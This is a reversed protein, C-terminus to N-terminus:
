PNQHKSDGRAYRRCAMVNIVTQVKWKICRDKPELKGFRKILKIFKWTKPQEMKPPRRIPRLGNNKVINDVAVYGPTAAHTSIPVNPDSMRAMMASSFSLASPMRLGQTTLTSRWSTKWPRAQKEKVKRKLLKRECPHNLMNTSSFYWVM